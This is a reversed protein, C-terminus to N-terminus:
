PTGVCRRLALTKLVCERYEEEPVSAPVVKAGAQVVMGAPTQWMSRTFASADVSGDAGFFGITGAFPGRRTTETEAILDLAAQRHHGVAAGHPSLARVLDIADRGPRLQGSVAAFLHALNFFRREEREAEFTLGSVDAYPALAEMLADAVVDYEVLEKASPTWVFSEDQYPRTAGDTEALFRGEHAQVLSLSTAGWADFPAARLLFMCTSPNLARLVRYAALPDTREPTRLRVSMVAGEVPLGPGMQRQAAATTASFDAESIAARWILPRTPPAPAAGPPTALAGRLAGTLAPDGALWARGTKHDLTVLTEPALLVADPAEGQDRAPTPKGALSEYGILAFVGGGAAPPSGPASAIRDGLRERLRAFIAAASAEVLTDATGGFGLYSISPQREHPDLREYVFGPGLPLLRAVVDDSVGEALLLPPTHVPGSM